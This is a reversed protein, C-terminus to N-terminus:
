AGNLLLKIHFLRIVKFDDDDDDDDDADNILVGFCCYMVCLIALTMSLRIVQFSDHSKKNSIETEISTDYIIESINSTPFPFSLM